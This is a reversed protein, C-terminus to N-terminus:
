IILNIPKSLYQKFYKLFNTATQFNNKKVDFSLTVEIESKIKKEIIKRKSSGVALIARQPQNIVATFQNIGFMGLNSVTFSGGQYEDPQLKGNRARTALDKIKSNIEMLNLNSADKVIPTVLGTKTAVAVSIDNSKTNSINLEPVKKLAKASALIILDNLSFTQNEPSTSKVEKRLSNAEDISVNVTLYNHTSKEKSEVMRTAIIKRMSSLPVDEYNSSIQTQTPLTSQNESQQSTSLSQQTETTPQASQAFLVDGKTIIGHKGTGKLQNVEISLTKSLTSAAPSMRRSNAQEEVLDQNTSSKGPVSAEQASEVVEPAAESAFDDLNFGIQTVEKLAEETETVIAIPSGVLIDNKTDKVLITALFGDDIAEFDVTAKDTEVECLVDGAGYSQGEELSWSAIMGSAMTPSLAPMNLLSSGAPLSKSSFFRKLGNLNQWRLRFM